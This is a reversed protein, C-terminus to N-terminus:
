AGGTKPSALRKRVELILAAEAELLAADFHYYPQCEWVEGKALKEKGRKLEWWSGDGDMDVAILDFGAARYKSVACDRYVKHDWNFRLTPADGGGGTIITVEVGRAAASVLAEMISM